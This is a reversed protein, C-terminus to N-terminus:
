WNKYLKIFHFRPGLALLFCSLSISPGLFYRSDFAGTLMSIFGALVFLIVLLFLIREISLLRSRWTHSRMRRREVLILAVCFLVLGVTVFIYSYTIVFLNKWIFILGISTFLIFFLLLIGPVSLFNLKWRRNVLPLLMYIILWLLIILLIGFSSSEGLGQSKLAANANKIIEDLIGLLLAVITILTLASSFMTDLVAIRRALQYCIVSVLIISSAAIFLHGLYRLLITQILHPSTTLFIGAVMYAISQGILYQRVLNRYNLIMGRYEIIM